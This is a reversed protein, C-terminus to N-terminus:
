INKLESSSKLETYDGSLKCTLDEVICQLPLESFGVADAISVSCCCFEGDVVGHRLDKAEEALLFTM